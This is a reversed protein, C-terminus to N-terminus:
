LASSWTWRSEPSPLCTGPVAQTGTHHDMWVSHAGRPQVTGCLSSLTFAQVSTVRQVRPRQAVHAGPHAPGYNMLLRALPGAGTDGGGGGM